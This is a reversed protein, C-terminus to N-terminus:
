RSSKHQMWQGPLSPCGTWQPVKSIECYHQTWQGPISPCWIGRSGRLSTSCGGATRSQRHQASWHLGPLTEEQGFGQLLFPCCLLIWVATQASYQHLHGLWHAGPGAPHLQLL